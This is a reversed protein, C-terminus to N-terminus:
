SSYLFDIWELGREKWKKQYKAIKKDKDMIDCLHSIKLSNNLLDLIKEVLPLDLCLGDNDIHIGAMKSQTDRTEISGRAPRYFVFQEVAALVDFLNHWCPSLMNFRFSNFSSIIKNLIAFFMLRGLMVSDEHWGAFDDLADITSNLVGYLSKHCSIDDPRDNAAKCTRTCFHHYHVMAFLSM